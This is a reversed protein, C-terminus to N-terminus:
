FILLLTIYAIIVVLAIIVIPNFIVRRVKLNLLNLKTLQEQRLQLKGLYYHMDMFERHWLTMMTQRQFEPLKAVESLDQGMTLMKGLKDATYDLSVANYFEQADRPIKGHLVKLKEASETTYVEQIMTNNIIDYFQKLTAIYGAALNIEQELKSDQM